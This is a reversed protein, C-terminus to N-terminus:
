RIKEITWLRKKTWRGWNPIHFLYTGNLKKGHADFIFKTKWETKIVFEGKDWLMTKGSGYADEMVDGSDSENPDQHLDDEIAIKIEKKNSPVGNPIIWSKYEGNIYLHFDYHPHPTKHETILFSNTESM